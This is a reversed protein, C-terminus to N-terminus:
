PQTVTFTTTFLSPDYPWQLNSDPPPLLAPDGFQSVRMTITDTRTTPDWHDDVITPGYPGVVGNQANNPAVTPVIDAGTLQNVLGQPTSATTARVPEGDAAGSLMFGGGGLRILQNERGGQLVSGENHWHAAGPPGAAGEPIAAAWGNPNNTDVPVSYLERGPGKGDGPNGVIYMKNSTPDYAGSVQGLPAKGIVVPHNPDTIDVIASNPTVYGLNPSGDANNYPPFSFFAYKKGNPGDATGTPIARTGPPVDLPNLKGNLFPHHEPTGDKTSAAGDGGINLDHHGAITDDLDDHNPNPAREPKTAPLNIVPDPKPQDDPGGGQKFKNGALFDASKGKPRPLKLGQLEASKTVLERHIASDTDALSKIHYQITDAHENAAKVTQADWTGTPTVSWDSDVEFGEAEATSIADNVKSMASHVSDRGREAIKVLDEATGIRANTVRVAHDAMDVAADNARGTWETGGPNRISEVHNSSWRRSRDIQARLQTALADFHTTTWQQYENRSPITM